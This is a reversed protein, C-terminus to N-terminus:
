RSPGARFMLLIETPGLSWMRSQPFLLLQGRNGRTKAISSRALRLELELLHVKLSKTLKGATVNFKNLYLFRIQKASSLASEQAARDLVAAALWM